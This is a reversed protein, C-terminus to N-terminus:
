HAYITVEDCTTTCARIVTKPYLTIRAIRMPSSSAGLGALNGNADYLEWFFNADVTHACTM